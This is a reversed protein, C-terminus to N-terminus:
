WPAIQKPRGKLKQIFKQKAERFPASLLKAAFNDIFRWVMYYNLTRSFQYYYQTKWAASAM